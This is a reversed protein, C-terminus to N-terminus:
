TAALGAATAPLGGWSGVPMLGGGDGVAWGFITGSDADLAYLFRGGDALCEDRLGARGDVTVGATADKLTLRGDGAIGYCSVAGDAFNTTYAYRDDPAVVAWCIESRGNGASETVPTVAAGEVSYSSIAAAGKQAGFAETVVLTGGSTFAFGYPTPGSSPVTQPEGLSGDAAVPFATISNTGRETVVLATGDPSFGVQAPDADPSLAQEGGAMAELGADTLRFGVVAPTGTTLVYVLRGREAVSRPRPGVPTQGVVDLGGDAGVRFATVDGSGANTVLLHRCEGTLTVSGQSQLHPEGEGGGGTDVSAVRTLSGDAARLFAVVANQAENSQVFVAGESM